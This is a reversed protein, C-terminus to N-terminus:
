LFFKVAVVRGVQGYCEDRLAWWVRQGACFGLRCSTQGSAAVQGTAVASRARLRLLGPRHGCGQGTATDGGGESFCGQVRAADERQAAEGSASGAADERQAAACDSQEDAHKPGDCTGACPRAKETGPAGLGPLAGLSSTAGAQLEEAGDECLEYFCVYSKTAGRPKMDADCAKRVLDDNYVWWSSGTVGASVVAVYHGGYRSEGQHAVFSRLRYKAGDVVM